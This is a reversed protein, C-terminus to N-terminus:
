DSTYVLRLAGSKINSKLEIAVPRTAMVIFLALCIWVVDELVNQM